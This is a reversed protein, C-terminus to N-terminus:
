FRLLLVKYIIIDIKVILWWMLPSGSDSDYLINYSVENTKVIINCNVILNNAFSHKTIDKSILNICHAICFLDLIHKYKYTILLRALNVNTAGDTVIASFKDLSIEVL